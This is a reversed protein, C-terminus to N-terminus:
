ISLDIKDVGIKHLITATNTAGYMRKSAYIMLRLAETKNLNRAYLLDRSTKVKKEQTFKNIEILDM